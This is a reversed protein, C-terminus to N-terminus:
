LAEATIVQLSAPDFKEILAGLVAFLDVESSVVYELVESDEEQDALIEALSNLRMSMNRCFSEQKSYTLFERIVQAGAQAAKESLDPLLKPGFLVYFKAFEAASDKTLTRSRTTASTADKFAADLTLEESSPVFEWNVSHEQVLKRGFAEIGANLFFCVQEEPLNMYDDACAFGQFSFKLEPRKEGVRDALAPVKKALAESVTKFNQTVEVTKM